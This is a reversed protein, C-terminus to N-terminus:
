CKGPLLTAVALTIPLHEPLKGIHQNTYVAGGDLIQLDATRNIQRVLSDRDVQAPAPCFVQLQQLQEGAPSAESFFRGATFVYTNALASQIAALASETPSQGANGFCIGIKVCCDNTM